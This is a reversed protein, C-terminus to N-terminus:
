RRGAAQEDQRGGQQRHEQEEEAHELEIEHEIEAKSIRDRGLLVFLGGFLSWATLHLRYLVSLAVGRTGMTMEDIAGGVYASGYRGFLFRYLVEGFGWGNPALPLASAINIVPILVFYGIRPLGVGLAEGIFLVSAVSVVHNGVGAVLSWAITRKYNRYFFVAEDFRKLVHSLRAPLRDLLAKLRILARLRKSFACAGLLAVGAMVAWIVKALDEFKDLAFLVVVASLIALSALGLVRDVIVSVLAAVRHGPCHKMIYVAKIVDGGTAGLMVSNFFTDIWTFRLAETLRVNMGNVRLLWWWRAGAILVTLFYCTAGLVFLPLDLNRWYTILGPDIEIERGDQQHGRHMPAPVAEGRRVIVPEAKWDGVIAVVEESPTSANPQWVLRDRWNVKEVLVWAMLGSVLLLKLLTVQWRKVVAV